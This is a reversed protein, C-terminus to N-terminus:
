DFYDSGGRPPSVITCKRYPDYAEESFRKETYVNPTTINGFNNDFKEKKDETEKTKKANQNGVKSKSKKLNTDLTKQLIESKNNEFYDIMAKGLEKTDAIYNKNENISLVSKEIDFSWTTKSQGKMTIEISGGSIFLNSIEITNVVPYSFNYGQVKNDFDPNKLARVNYESSKEITVM